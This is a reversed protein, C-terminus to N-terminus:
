SSYEYQMCNVKNDTSFVSNLCLVFLVSIVWLFMCTEISDITMVICSLTVCNWNLSSMFSFSYQFYENEPMM